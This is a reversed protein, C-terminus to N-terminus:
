GIIWLYQISEIACSKFIALSWAYTKGILIDSVLLYSALVDSVFLECQNLLWNNFPYKMQHIQVKWRSDGDKKNIQKRHKRKFQFPKFQLILLHGSRLTLVKHFMYPLCLCIRGKCDNVIKANFGGMVSTQCPELCMEGHM